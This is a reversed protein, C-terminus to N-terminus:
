SEYHNVYVRQVLLFSIYIILSIWSLRSNKITKFSMEMLAKIKQPDSQVRNKSIMEGFFPVSTCRFHHKDKNLILNVKRCRQLVKQVTEDHDRDDDKDGVVLIDDAIVFANPIGNFIDYIKRQFM